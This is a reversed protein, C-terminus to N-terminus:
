KEEEKFNIINEKLFLPMCVDKSKNENKNKKLLLIGKKTEEM